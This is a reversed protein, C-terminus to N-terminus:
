SSRITEYNGEPNHNVQWWVIVRKAEDEKVGYNILAQPTVTDLTIRGKSKLYDLRKFMLTEFFTTTREIKSGSM